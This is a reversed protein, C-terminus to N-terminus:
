QNCMDKKNYSLHCIEPLEKSCLLLCDIVDPNNCHDNNPMQEFLYTLRIESVGDRSRCDM